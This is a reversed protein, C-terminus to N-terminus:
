ERRNAVPSNRAVSTPLVLRGCAYVPETVSATGLMGEAARRGFSAASRVCEARVGELSESDACVGV